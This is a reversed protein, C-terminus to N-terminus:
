KRLRGEFHQQAEAKQEIAVRRQNMVMFYLKLKDYPIEGIQQPTWGFKEMLIIEIVIEPVETDFTSGGYYYNRM